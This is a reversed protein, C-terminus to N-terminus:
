ALTVAGLVADLFDEVTVSPPLAALTARLRGELLLMSLGHVLSWIAVGQAARQLPTRTAAAPHEGIIKRLADRGGQIADRLAPRQADLRESRFMLTFLGPHARAFDVYARGMADSRRKPEPGAKEVAATLAAAFRRYGLAALESLLGTLDGFHNAPAAHSVGAARAVARLTLAPMGEAELIREAETLLANPLDGHHYPRSTAASPM